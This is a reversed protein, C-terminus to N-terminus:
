IIAIRAPERIQKCIFREHFNLTKCYGARFVALLNVKFMSEFPLYIITAVWKSGGHDSNEGVLTGSLLLCDPSEGM